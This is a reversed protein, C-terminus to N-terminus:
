PAGDSSAASGTAARPGGVIGLSPTPDAAVSTPLSGAPVSQFSRVGSTGSTLAEWLADLTHGLPSILGMGTIVVRRSTPSIM